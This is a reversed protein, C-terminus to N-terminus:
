RVWELFAEYSATWPMPKYAEGESLPKLEGSAVMSNLRAIMEKQVEVAIPDILEYVINKKPGVAEWPLDPCGWDRSEFANSPIVKLRELQGGAEFDARYQDLLDM